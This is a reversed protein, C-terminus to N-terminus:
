PPGQKSRAEAHFSKDYELTLAITDARIYIETMFIAKALPGGSKQLYYANLKPDNRLEKELFDYFQQADKFSAKQALMKRKLADIIEIGARDAPFLSHKKECSIRAKDLQQIFFDAIPLQSTLEAAVDKFNLSSFCQKMAYANPHTTKNIKWRMMILDHEKHYTKGAIFCQLLILKVCKEYDKFPSGETKREPRSLLEKMAYDIAKWGTGRDRLESLPYYINADHDLLLEVVPANGQQSALMLPSMRGQPSLDDIFTPKAFGNELLYQLFEFKSQPTAHESTSELIVILPNYRYPIKNDRALLKFEELYCSSLLDKAMMLINTEKGPVSDESYSHVIRVIPESFPTNEAIIKQKQAAHRTLPRIRFLETESDTKDKSKKEDPESKPDKPKSRPDSM